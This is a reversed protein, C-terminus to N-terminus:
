PRRLPSPYLYSLTIAAFYREAFYFCFYGFSNVMPFVDALLLLVAEMQSVDFSNFSSPMCVMLTGGGNVREGTWGGGGGMQGEVYERKVM